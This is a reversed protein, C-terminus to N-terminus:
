GGVAVTKVYARVDRNLLGSVGYHGAPLTGPITWSASVTYSDGRQLTKETVIQGFMRGQSWAWVVKGEADKVTFDYQQATNFNLVLATATPNRVLMRMKVTEGPQYSNRDTTLYCTIGELGGPLTIAAAQLYPWGGAALAVTGVVVLRRGLVNFPGGLPPWVQAASGSTCYLSGTADRLTWDSRTVPPGHTVAPGFPDVETGTYEGRLQVSKGAWQPPDALIAGIDTPTGVAPAGTLLNLTLTAPDWTVRGGVMTAVSCAYLYVVGGVRVPDCFPHRTLPNAPLPVGIEMYSDGRMHGVKLTHQAEDWQVSWGLKEFVARAPVYATNDILLAPAPLNVQVGNLLFVIVIAASM